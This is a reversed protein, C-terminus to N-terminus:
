KETNLSINGLTGCATAQDNTSTILMLNHRSFHLVRCLYCQGTEICSSNKRMVYHHRFIINKFFTTSNTHILSLTVRTVIKQSEVRTVNLFITVRNWELWTEWLIVRSSNCDIVRTLTMNVFDRLEQHVFGTRKCVFFHASKAETIILIPPFTRNPQRTASHQM